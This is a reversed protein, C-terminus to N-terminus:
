TLIQLNGPLAVIISDVAAQTENKVLITAQTLKQAAMLTRLVLDGNFSGVLTLIQVDQLCIQWELNIYFRQSRSHCINTFNTAAQLKSMRQAFFPPSVEAQTHDDM